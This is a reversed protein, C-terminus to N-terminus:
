WSSRCPRVPPFRVLPWRVRQTRNARVVAPADREVAVGFRGDAAFNREVVVGADHLKWVVRDGLVYRTRYVIGSQNLCANDRIILGLFDYGVPEPGDPDSCAPNSICGGFCNAAHDPQEPTLWATESRNHIIQTFAAGGWVKQGEFSRVSWVTIHGNDRSVNGDVVVDHSDGWLLINAGTHVIANDVLTMGRFPPPAAFAIVSDPGPAFRFPRDIEVEDGSRAVVTRVQGIGPGDVVSLVGGVIEERRVEGGPDLIRYRTPGLPRVKPQTWKAPWLHFALGECDNNIQMPGYTNRAVFGYEAGYNFYCLDRARESYAEFRNEEVLVRHSYNGIVPCPKADPNTTWDAPWSLHGMIYMGHGSCGAKITNRAARVYSCGTLIIGSGGGWIENDEIVGGDGRLRIAVFGNYGQGDSTATWDKLWQRWAPDADRRRPLNANPAQEIRCRRVTVNRARTEGWSFPAKFAAEFSEPLFTPAVIALPAYVTYLRIDEVVFDGDGTLLVWPPRPGDQVPGSLCTRDAGAGRLVCRAPLVITRTVGYVGTGFELVGGGNRRLEALAREIAADVDKGTRRYADVRFVKRPWAARRAATVRLPESWGLAGGRGNHAFLEYDGQAVGQPWRAHAEYASSVEVPICIFRAHGVRRAVLKMAGKRLGGYSVPRRPDRQRYRSVDALCRGILRLPEGAVAQQPWCWDLRPRNVVWWASDPADPDATMAYVGFPVAPVDVTVCEGTAQAIPWRKWPRRAADPLIAVGPMRPPGDPLRRAFLADGKVGGGVTAVAFARPIVPEMVHTIVSNTDV